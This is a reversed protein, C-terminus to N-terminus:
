VGESEASVLVSNGDYSERMVVSEELMTLRIPKDLAKGVPAFAGPYEVSSCM